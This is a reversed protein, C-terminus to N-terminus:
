LIEIQLTRVVFKDNRKSEESKMTNPKISSLCKLDKRAGIIHNSDSQFSSSEIRYIHLHIFMMAALRDRAGM